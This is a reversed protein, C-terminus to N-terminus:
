HTSDIHWKVTKFLSTRPLSCWLSCLLLPLFVKFMFCIIKCFPRSYFCWISNPATKNLPGMLWRSVMILLMNILDAPQKLRAPQCSSFGLHYPKSIHVSFLSVIGQGSHSKQSLCLRLPVCCFCFNQLVKSYSVWM